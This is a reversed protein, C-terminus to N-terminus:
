KISQFRPHYNRVGSIFPWFYNHARLFNQNSKNFKRSIKLCKLRKVDSASVELSFILKTGDLLPTHLYGRSVPAPRYSVAMSKEM